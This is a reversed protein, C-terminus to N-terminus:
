ITKFYILEICFSKFRFILSISMFFGAFNTMANKNVVSIAKPAACKIRGDILASEYVPSEEPSDAVSRKLAVFVYLKECKLM